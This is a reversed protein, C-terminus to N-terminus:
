FEDIMIHELRAGIKEFIFPSDSGDILGHLLQQTDSLLFQNTDANIERMKKEINNLLRLQSLYQLTVTASSSLRWLKVRDNEANRLIDM